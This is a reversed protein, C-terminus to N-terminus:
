SLMSAWWLLQSFNACTISWFSQTALHQLLNSPGMTSQRLSSKRTQKGAMSASGRIASTCLTDGSSGVQASFRGQQLSSVATCQLLGASTPLNPHTYTHKFFFVFFIYIYVYVCVMTSGPLTKNPPYSGTHYWPLMSPLIIDVALGSDVMQVGPATIWKSEGSSAAGIPLSFKSIWGFRSCLQAPPTPQFGTLTTKINKKQSPPAYNSLIGLCTRSM